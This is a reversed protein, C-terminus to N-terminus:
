LQGIFKHTQPVVRVQKLNRKMLVQWNLVQEPDPAFVPAAGLQESLDISTVPQLFVPIDPSCAAVLESAQILEAPNTQKSVIIKIFTEVRAEFCRQLFKAHAQWRTEGSVSPLKLDMGVSDVFPLVMMLEEPRHGATELYIPLGTLRRVQPL